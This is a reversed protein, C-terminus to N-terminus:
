DSSTERRALDDPSWFIVQRAAWTGRDTEITPTWATVVYGGNARQVVRATLYGAKDVAWALRAAEQATLRVAHATSM